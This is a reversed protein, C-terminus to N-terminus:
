RAGAVQRVKVPPLALATSPRYRPVQTVARPRPLARRVVGIPNVGCRCLEGGPCDIAHQHNHPQRQMIPRNHPCAIPNDLPPAAVLAARQLPLRVIPLMNPPIHPVALRPASPARLPALGWAALPLLAPTSAHPRSPTPSALPLAPTPRPPALPMAPPWPVTAPPTASPPWPPWRPGASTPPQPALPLASPLTARQCPLRVALALPLPAVPPLPPCPGGGVVGRRCPPSSRWLPRVRVVRLAVRRCWLRLAVRVRLPCGQGSCSPHVRLPQNPPNCPTPGNPRHAVHRSCPWRLPGPSRTTNRHWAALTAPGPAGHLGGVGAVTCVSSRGGGQASARHPGARRGRGGQEGGGAISGGPTYVRDAPKAGCQCLPGRRGMTASVPNAGVGWRGGGEAGKNQRNSGRPPGQPEPCPPRSPALSPAVGSGQPPGRARGGLVSSSARATAREATPGTPCAQRSDRHPTAPHRRRPRAPGAGVVVDDTCGEGRAPKCPPTGRSRTRAGRGGSSGRHPTSAAM